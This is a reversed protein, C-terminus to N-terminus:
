SWKSKYETVKVKCSYKVGNVTASITATGKKKAEIIGIKNVTAIANNSSKWVIDNSSAGYLYLYSFYDEEITVLKNSLYPVVVNVSCKYENGLYTAIITAKGKKVATVNGNTVRVIKEDSSKWVINNSDSVERGFDDVLKIKKNICTTYLSINKNNLAYTLNKDILECKMGFNDAIDKALAGPLTYITATIGEDFALGSCRTVSDTMYIKNLKPCNEFAIGCIETVSDPIVIKELSTCDRFAFDIIESINSSLKIDKLSSCASFAGNDIKTVSDPIEISELSSCGCFAFYDIKTISDPLEVRVLDECYYFAYMPITKITDPLTISTISSEEFAFPSIYTVTDPIVVDGTCETGNILSHALIVMPSKERQEILWITNEFAYEDIMANTSLMNVEKLGSRSFASDYIHKVKEPITIKELEGCHLFTSYHIETLESPLNIEELDYCKEFAHAGIYNVKDPIKISVLNENEMFAESSITRVHSPLTIAEAKTSRGDILMDNVIVLPNKKIQAALWPTGDFVRAGVKVGYAKIIVEKLNSCDSFASFELSTVAKPITISKLSSCETFACDGIRTVSEPINISKLSSCGYFANRAINTVSAPLVVTEVEEGFVPKMDLFNENMSGISTIGEPIIVEKSDGYYQILMGQKIFFEENEEASIQKGARTGLAIALILFVIGYLMTRYSRTKM